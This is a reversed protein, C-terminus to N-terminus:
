AMLWRSALVEAEEVGHTLVQEAHERGDENDPVADLGSEGRRAAFMGKMEVFKALRRRVMLKPKAM